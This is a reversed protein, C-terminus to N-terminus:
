VSRIRKTILLSGIGLLVITAPEPVTVPVTETWLGLPTMAQGQETTMEINEYFLSILPLVIEELIMYPNNIMEDPPFVM